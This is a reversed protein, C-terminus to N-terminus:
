GIILQFELGLSALQGGLDNCGPCGVDVLRDVWPQFILEKFTTLLRWVHMRSAPDLTAGRRRTIAGLNLLAANTGSSTIVIDSAGTGLTTSAFTQTTAGTGGAAILLYPRKAM